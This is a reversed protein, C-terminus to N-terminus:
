EDGDEWRITKTGGLKWEILTGGVSAPLDRCAETGDQLRTYLGRRSLIRLTGSEAKDVVKQLDALGRGRHSDGTKTRGLEMAARIRPGDTNALGLSELIGHMREGFTRPLTAPIGVGQDYLLVSISRKARDWHGAMWWRGKLRLYSAPEGNPYAHASVNTMAESLGVYVARGAHPDFEVAGGFVLKRLERVAQGNVLLGSRIQTFCQNANNSTRKPVRHRIRIHKFFGIDQLFIEVDQDKPYSGDILDNHVGLTLQCRQVEAALVLGAAPSINKCKDFDLFIAVKEKLVAQRIRQFFFLTEDLADVFCLCEPVHVVIREGRSFTNTIPLHRRGIGGRGM